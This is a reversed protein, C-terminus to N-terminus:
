KVYQFLEKIYVMPLILFGPDTLAWYQSQVHGEYLLSKSCQSTSALFDGWPQFPDQWTLEDVGSAPVEIQEIQPLSDGKRNTGNQVWGFVEM